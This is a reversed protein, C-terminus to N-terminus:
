KYFTNILGLIEQKNYKNGKYIEKFDIFKYKDNNILLLSPSNSIKFENFLISNEESTDDCLDFYTVQQNVMSQITGTKRRMMIVEPTCDLLVSKIIEPQELKISDILLGLEINCDHCSETLTVVVIIKQNLDLLNYRSGDITVVNLEKTNSNCSCSMLIILISVYLRNKM